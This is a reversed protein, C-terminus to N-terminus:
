TYIVISLTFTFIHSSCARRFLDVISNIEVLYNLFFEKNVEPVSKNRKSKQSVCIRKVHKLRLKRSGFVKNM